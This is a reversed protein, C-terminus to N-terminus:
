VLEDSAKTAPRCQARAASTQEAMQEAVTLVTGVSREMNQVFRLQRANLEGHRGDRLLELFGSISGLPSILDHRLRNMLASHTAQAEELKASALDSSNATGELRESLLAIQRLADGFRARTRLIWRTLIAASPLIVVLSLDMGIASRTTRLGLYLLFGLACSLGISVILLLRPGITGPITQIGKCVIM